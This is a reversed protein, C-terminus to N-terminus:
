NRKTELWTAILVEEVVKFETVSAPGRGELRTKNDRGEFPVILGASKEDSRSLNRNGKYQTTALPWSADSSVERGLTMLSEYRAM